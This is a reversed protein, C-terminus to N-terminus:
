PILTLLKDGAKDMFTTIENTFGAVAVAIVAAVGLVVLAYEVAGQGDERRLAILIREYLNHM